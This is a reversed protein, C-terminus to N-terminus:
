ADAHPAAEEEFEVLAYVAFPPLHVEAGGLTRSLPLPRPAEGPLHLHARRVPLTIQVSIPHAAPRLTYNLLHVLHRGPLRAHRWQLASANFLRVADHRRSMLLHADRALLWPDDFAARAEALHGKGSSYLRFRPHTDDTLRGRPWSKLASPTAILVGGADAWPRLDSPVPDPDCWLLARREALASATLRTREVPVFAIGLRAALLLTETSIYENPGTFDSAIALRAFPTAAHFADRQQLWSISQLIQRWSRVAADDGDRIAAAHPEALWLPRRAGYAWAETVALQYHSWRLTRPDEPPDSRLWLTTAAARARAMEILWGNADLWAAGTPGAPESGAGDSSLEPWFGDGIAVPSAPNTWDLERWSQWRIDEPCVFGVAEAAARIPHDPAPLLLCNVPASELLRLAGPSAWAAPWEFPVWSAAPDAM